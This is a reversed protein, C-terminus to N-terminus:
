KKSACEPCLDPVQWGEEALQELAQESEERPFNVQKGCNDCRIGNPRRGIPPREIGVIVARQVYGEYAM